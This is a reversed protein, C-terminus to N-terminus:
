GTLDSKRQTGYGVVVIEDLAATDELLVVNIVSRGAVAISQSQYGIFSFLLVAGEPVDLSFRGELDTATGIATGQVLVTVGPLPEGNADAVTGSIQVAAVQRDFLRKIADHAPFAMRCSVQMGLMRGCL